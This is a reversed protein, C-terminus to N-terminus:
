SEDKQYHKGVNKLFNLVGMTDNYRMRDLQERTVFVGDTPPLFIFHVDNQVVHLEKGQILAIMSEFTLKIPIPQGKM